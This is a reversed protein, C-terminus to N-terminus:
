SDWFGACINDYVAEKLIKNIFFTKDKSYPIPSKFPSWSSSPTGSKIAALFNDFSIHLGSRDNVRRFGLLEHFLYFSSWHNRPPSLFRPTINLTHKQLHHADQKLMQEIIHEKSSYAALPDADCDTTSFVTKQVSELLGEYTPVQWAQREDLESDDVQVCACKQFPLDSLLHRSDELANISKLLANISLTLSPGTLHRKSKHTPLKERSPQSHTCHFPFSVPHCAIRHIPIAFRGSSNPLSVRSLPRTQKVSNCGVHLAAPLQLWRNQFLHSFGIPNLPIVSLDMWKLRNSIGCCSLTWCRDLLHVHVVAVM